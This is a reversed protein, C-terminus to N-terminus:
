YNFTIKYDNGSVNTATAKIDINNRARQKETETLTQEINYQVAIRQAEQLLEAIEQTWSAM